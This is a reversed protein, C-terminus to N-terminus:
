HARRQRAAWVARARLWAAIREKFTPEEDTGHHTPFEPGIRPRRKKDEWSRVKRTVPPTPARPPSPPPDYFHIAGVFVPAYNASRRATQKTRTM